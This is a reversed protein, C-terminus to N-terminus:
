RRFRFAGIQPCTCYDLDKPALSLELFHGYFYLNEKLLYRWACRNVGQMLIAESMIKM